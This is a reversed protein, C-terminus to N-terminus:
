SLRAITSQLPAGMASGANMPRVEQRNSHQQRFAVGPSPRRNKGRCALPGAPPQDARSTSPPCRCWRHDLLSRLSRDTRSWPRATRRRGVEGWRRNLKDFGPGQCAPPGAPPQDAPDPAISSTTHRTPRDSPCTTAASTSPATPAAHPVPLRPPQVVPLHRTRPRHLDLDHPDQAPSTPQVPTRHQLQLHTGGATTPSSTTASATRPRHPHVLPLRLHPRAARDARPAPRPGRLRETHLHENLDIVPKVTVATDPNACWTRVQDATVIQRHNEVRALHLRRGTGARHRGRLPARVPRGPAAEAAGLSTASRTRPTTPPPPRPRAPPPRAPRRGHLPTRRTLRRLRGGELAHAERQLADDLDLADALDLEGEIRSTGAFTVHDHHIAFYGGTRPESRGRRSGRRAHVPRDAEAVLRDLAAPGIRHAFHAVQRTSTRRRSRPLAGLTAQAIRRARWAPLEGAM